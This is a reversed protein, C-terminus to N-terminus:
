HYSGCRAVGKIIVPAMKRIIQIIPAFGGQLFKALHM